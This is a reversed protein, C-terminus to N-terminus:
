RKFVLQLAQSIIYDRSDYIFRRYSDLKMM